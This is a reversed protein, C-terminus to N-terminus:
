EVSSSSQVKRGRQRKLDTKPSTCSITFFLNTEQFSLQVLPWNFFVLHVNSFIRWRLLRTALNPLRAYNYKDLVLTSYLAGVVETACGECLWQACGAALVHSCWCAHVQSFGPSLFLLLSPLDWGYDFGFTTSETSETSSFVTKIKTTGLCRPNLFTSRLPPSCPLISTCSVQDSPRRPKCIKHPHAPEFKQRRTQGTDM